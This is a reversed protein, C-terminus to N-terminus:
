NEYLRRLAETGLNRQQTYLPQTRFGRGLKSGVGLPRFSTCVKNHGCLARRFWRLLGFAATRFLHVMPRLQLYLPVRRQSGPEALGPEVHVPKSASQAFLQLRM